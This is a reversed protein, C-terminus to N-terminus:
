FNALIQALQKTLKYDDSAIITVPLDVEQTGDQSDITVTTSIDEYSFYSCSILLETDSVKQVNLRDLNSAYSFEQAALAPETSVTVIASPSLESLTVNSTGLKIGTASNSNGSVTVNITGNLLTEGIANCLKIKGETVDVINKNATFYFYTNDPDIVVTGLTEPTVKATITKATAYAPKLTNVQGEYEVGANVSINNDTEVSTYYTPKALDVGLKNDAVSLTLSEGSALTVKNTDDDVGKVSSDASTKANYINTDIESLKDTLSTFGAAFGDEDVFIETGVEDTTIVPSNKDGTDIRSDLYQVSENKNEISM